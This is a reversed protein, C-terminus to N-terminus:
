PIVTLLGSFYKEENTRDNYLIVIWPYQGPAVNNGDSSTGDWGKNKNVSEFIPTSGQYVTMKFKVKGSKLAQPMFIDTGLAIKSQAELKYETNVPIYKVKSDTCGYENSVTLAVMHKGKDVYSRVPSIEESEKGDGFNWSFENANDSINIIKVTPTETPDNVFEWEFDASPSPNIVIIDRQVSTRIVGGESTVSLSVDYVGSKSYRHATNPKNSFTGDGFNWLYQGESPSDALNFNVEYGVCAKDVNTAFKLDRSNNEESITVKEQDPTINQVESVDIHPQLIFRDQLPIYASETNGSIKDAGSDANQSLTIDSLLQAPLSNENTPSISNNSGNSIIQDQFRAFAYGGKAKSVKFGHEYILYSGAGTFIAAAALAVIWSYNSSGGRSAIQKELRNWSKADFPTEYGEMSQRVKEEFPTFIKSM